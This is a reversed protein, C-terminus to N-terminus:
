NCDREHMPCWDSVERVSDHGSARGASIFYHEVLDQYEANQEPLWELLKLYYEPFSNPSTNWSPENTAKDNDTVTTDQSPADRARRKKSGM